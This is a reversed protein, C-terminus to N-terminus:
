FAGVDFADALGEGYKQESQESQAIDVLTQKKYVQISTLVARAQLTGFVGTTIVIMGGFVFVFVAFGFIIGPIPSGGLAGLGGFMTVAAFIVFFMLIYLAIMIGILGFIRATSLSSDMTVEGLSTNIVVVRFEGVRYWIYMIVGALSAFSYAALYAQTVTSVGLGSPEDQQLDHLFVEFEWQSPIGATAAAILFPSLCVALAIWWRKALLMPSGAYQFYTQGFRMHQVRYQILWHRVWPYAIGISGISVLLAVIVMLSYRWTNGNLGFQVGRWSTRTLRYRNMRYIAVQILVLVALLYGVQYMLFLAVGESSVVTGIFELAFYIPALIAVVILFGIFLEKPTGHYEFRDGDFETQSWFYRRLKTKAWFRYIGLTLITLLTFKFVMKCVTTVDGNFYVPEGANYSSVAAETSGSEVVQDSM